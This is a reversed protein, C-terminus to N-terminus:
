SWPWHQVYGGDIKQQRSKEKQQDRKRARSEDDLRIKENYRRGSLIKREEKEREVPDDIARLREHTKALFGHPNDATVRHSWHSHHVQQRSASRTSVRRRSIFVVIHNLRHIHVLLVHGNHGWIRVFKSGDCFVWRKSRRPESDSDSDDVEVADVPVDEGMAAYLKYIDAIMRNIREMGYEDDIPIKLGSETKLRDRMILLEVTRKKILTDADAIKQM